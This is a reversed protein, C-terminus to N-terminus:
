LIVPVQRGITLSDPTVICDYALVRVGHDAAERLATGFAPHTSDNPSLSRVNEMQVVFFATADLGMEVARQLEAGTVGDRAMRAVERGVLALAQEEADPNVATSVGLDFLFCDVGPIEAEVLLDDLDGFNGKLPLFESQPAEREMRQAAAALAMDDQDIGISLGDPAISEAMAVTHGAFGLTCDCVVEGPQPALQEIVEDLMVPVHRYEDTLTQM